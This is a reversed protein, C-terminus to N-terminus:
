VGGQEGDGLSRALLLRSLDSEPDMADEMISYHNHGELIRCPVPRDPRSVMQAFSRSQEIWSQSEGGGVLVDLPLAAIPPHRMPSMQLAEDLSLQIQSNVSLSPVPELDFIGSILIAHDIPESSLSDPLSESHAMALLHAGASHGSAVIRPAGGLRQRNARVWRLLEVTQRVINGVTVDPCLDYNAVVTTIGRPAMTAALFSYDAKDRGRWFGGHLFVHVPTDTGVPFIDLVMKQGPGYRVDFEAKLAARAGRSAEAARDFYPSPDGVTVRPNYEAELDKPGGQEIVENM